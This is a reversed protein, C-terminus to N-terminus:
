NRGFLYAVGNWGYSYGGEGEKVTAQTQDTQIAGVLVRSQTCVINRGFEHSSNSEPNHISRVLEGHSAVNFVNVNGNYAQFLSGCFLETGNLVMSEGLGAGPWEPQETVGYRFKGGKSYCLISYAQDGIPPMAAVWVNQGDSAECTSAIGHFRVKGAKGSGNVLFQYTARYRPFWWSDQPEIYYESQVGCGVLLKEGATSMRQGFLRSGRLPNRIVQIPSSSSFDYKYVAGGSQRAENIVTPCSIYFYPGVKALQWGFFPDKYTGQDYFRTGEPLGITTILDGTAAELVHVSGYVTNSVIVRGNMLLVAAPIIAPTFQITRLFDGNHASYIHVAGDDAVAVYEEDMTMLSGFSTAYGPPPSIKAILQEALAARSFTLLGLTLVTTIIQKM